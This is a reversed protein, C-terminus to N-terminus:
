KSEKSRRPFTHFQARITQWFVERQTSERQLKISRMASPISSNLEVDIEHLSRWLQAREVDVPVTLGKTPPPLKLMAGAYTQAYDFKVYLEILQDQLDANLLQFKGSSIASDLAIRSIRNYCEPPETRDKDQTQRLTLGLEKEFTGLISIRDQQQLQWRTWRDYLLTLFFALFVGAFTAVFTLLTDYPSL